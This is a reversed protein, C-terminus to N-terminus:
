LADGVAAAAATSIAAADAYSDAATLVCLKCATIIYIISHQTVNVNEIVSIACSSSSSVM